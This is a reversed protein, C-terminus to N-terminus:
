FWLSPPLSSTTTANCWIGHTTWLFHTVPNNDEPLHLGADEALDLKTAVGSSPTIKFGKWFAIWLLSNLFIILHPVLDKSKMKQFITVVLYVSM